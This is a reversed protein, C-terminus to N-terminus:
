KPKCTHRQYAHYTDDEYDCMPSIYSCKSCSGIYTFGGDDFWVLSTKLTM